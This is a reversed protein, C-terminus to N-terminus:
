RRFNSFVKSKELYREPVRFCQLLFRLLFWVGKQFLSITKMYNMFIKPIPDERTSLMTTLGKQSLQHENAMSLSGLHAYLLAKVKFTPDKFSVACGKSVLFYDEHM